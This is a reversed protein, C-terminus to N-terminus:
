LYHRDLFAKAEAPTNIVGDLTAGLLAELIQRFQQGPKYGLRRLDTGDLPSKVEVLVTLYRWISHRDPRPSTAALLVLTAPDHRNLAIFIQSPQHATALYTALEAQDQALHHLRQISDSPLQLDTAIPAARDGLQALLIELLVQWRPGLLQLFKPPEPHSAARKLLRDVVAM